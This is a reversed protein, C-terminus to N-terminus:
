QLMYVGNRSQRVRADADIVASNKKLPFLGLCSGCQPQELIELRLPLVYAPPLQQKLNVDESM